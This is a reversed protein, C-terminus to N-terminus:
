RVVTPRRTETGDEGCIWEGSTGTLVIQQDGRKTVADREREREYGLRKREDMAGPEAETAVGTKRARETSAGVDRAINFTRSRSSSTHSCRRSPRPCM